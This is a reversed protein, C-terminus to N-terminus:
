RAAMTAIGAGDGNPVSNNTFTSNSISMKGVNELGGGSGASNNAFTSNSISMKGFNILGGGAIAVSNNTFTSNSISVTGEDENELGGGNGNPASNNAFTSNSIGVTGDSNELGGGSGALGHAITLANFTFIAGSSVLLVRISNGGDLTVTQGSGDLTLNKGILLTSSIPITGSCRFRITDGASASSIVTGIRGPGTEKRCDTVTLITHAHASRAQAGPVGCLGLLVMLGFGLRVFVRLLIAPRSKM